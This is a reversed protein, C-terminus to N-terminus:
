GGVDWVTFCLDKDELVLVNNVTKVTAKANLEKKLQDLITKKGAADLGVMCIFADKKSLVKTWSRSFLSGM